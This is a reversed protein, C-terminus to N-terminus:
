GAAALLPAPEEVAGTEWVWRHPAKLLARVLATNLAHGPQDAVYRALLPGGALSLDGIADLIKHRVFEDSHRLGEPNVIRGEHVAVANDLSAGRGLGAAHLKEIDAMFGFTRADAIESLFAERSMFFERRQVGIAADNFRITVDFSPQEGPALPLLTARKTGVEVSIPELVRVYARPAAQVKIGARMLIEVFGAASGDLIPVEPGDVEVHLNDIGLGACAALLHEVTAVEAGAANRLSTGLETTSLLEARAPIRADAGAFDTRVFVIGSNPAGPALRLRATEGKHVGIGECLVASQITHQVGGRM